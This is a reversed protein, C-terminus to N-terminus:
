QKKKKDNLVVFIVLALGIAFLLIPILVLFWSLKSLGHKCLYNLFWTWFIIYLFKILFFIGTHPIECTYSGVCLEKMDGYVLNQILILSTLIISITFYLQAPSCLASYTKNFQM